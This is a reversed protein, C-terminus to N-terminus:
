FARILSTLSKLAGIVRGRTLEARKRKEKKSLPADADDLLALYSAHAEGFERTVNDLGARLRGLEESRETAVLVAEAVPRRQESGKRALEVDLRDNLLALRHDLQGEYRLLWHDNIARLKALTSDFTARNAAVEIRKLDIVRKREDLVTDLLALAGSIAEQQDTTLALPTASSGGVALAAAQLVQLDSYAAEFEAGLALPERTLVEDVADLYGALAGIVALAPAFDAATIRDLPFDDAQRPQGRPRCLDIRKDDDAAAAIVPEPRICNPDSAFIDILVDRNEARAQNMLAQTAATAGRGAEVMTGARDLRIANTACGALGCAALLLAATRSHLGTM